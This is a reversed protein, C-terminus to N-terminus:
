FVTGAKGQDAYADSVDQMRRKKKRIDQIRIAGCLLCISATGCYIWWQLNSESQIDYIDGIYRETDSLLVMNVLESYDLTQGQSILVNYEINEMKKKEEQKVIQEREIFEDRFVFVGNVDMLSSKSATKQRVAEADFYVDSALAQIALCHFCLISLLFIYNMKKNKSRAADIITRTFKM